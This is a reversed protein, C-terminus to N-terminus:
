LPKPPKRWRHLYSLFFQGKETITYARAAEDYRVLKQNEMFGKFVMFTFAEWTPHSRIFAAHLEQLRAEPLPVLSAHVERLTTIQCEFIASWIREAESDAVALAWARMLFRVLDTAAAEEPIRIRWDEGFFRRLADESAAIYPDNFRALFRVVGLDTDDRAGPPVPLAPREAGAGGDDITGAGDDITGAGGDNNTGAGGDDITGVAAVLPTAMPRAEQAEITVRTANKEITVRRQLLSVAGDLLEGIQRRYARVLLGALCLIWFGTNGSATQAVGFALRTVEGVTHRVTSWDM